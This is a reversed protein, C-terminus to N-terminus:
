SGQVAESSLSSLNKLTDWQSLMLRVQQRLQDGARMLRVGSKERIFLATGLSVELRKMAASLSPQSIGLQEAARSFNLTTCVVKFYSLDNANPLM